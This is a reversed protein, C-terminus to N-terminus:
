NQILAKRVFKAQGNSIMVNYVGTSMNLTNFTVYNNQAAKIDESAVTRGFMDTVVISIDSQRPLNLAVNLTHMDRNSAITVGEDFSYETFGISGGQWLTIDDILANFTTTGTGSEHGVFSMTHSGAALSTVPITVHQYTTGYTLSDIGTTSFLPVGDMTLKMSDVLAGSPLALAYYFSILAPGATTVNFTQDLTGDEAAGAGGFWCYWTGTHPMCPGGCTGCNADCLSTGFNTSTSTWDTTTQSGSNELSSDLLLQQIQANAGVALILTFIALLFKKM